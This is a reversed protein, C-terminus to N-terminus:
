VVAKEQRKGRLKQGELHSLRYLSGTRILSVPRVFWGGTAVGFAGVSVTAGFFTKRERFGPSIPGARMFGTRSSRAAALAWIERLKFAQRAALPGALPRAPTGWPDPEGNGPVTRERISGL